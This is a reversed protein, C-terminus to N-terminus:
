SKVELPKLGGEPNSALENLDDPAKDIDIGQKRLIGTVIYAFFALYAFCAVAVWYSQHIGYGETTSGAQMFDALKGQLPPIVGGGLIMMILFASGQTTWKGLGTVSLTFVAPWMISCFLGGSLFAYIALQGTSMIGIVMAAVGLLSFLLLTRAPKDKSIYFGAIQVLVCVVFLYLPAPDYQSIAIVALVIGFAVLPVVTLLIQRLSSTVNFASISGAWRGIMLGGWYM